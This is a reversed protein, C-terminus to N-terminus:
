FEITLTNEDANFTCTYETLPRSAPGSLRQGNAVSFTSGHCNCWINGSNDLSAEVDCGTHTCVATFCQFSTDSTRVIVVDEGGNNAGFTKLLVGGTQALAPESNLDLTGTGGTEQPGKITDSECGSVLTTISAGCMCAGVFAGAKTLFERRENKDNAQRM